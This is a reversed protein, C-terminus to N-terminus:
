KAAGQVGSGPAVTGSAGVPYAVAVSPLENHRPGKGSEGAGV